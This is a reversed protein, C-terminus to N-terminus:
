ECTFGEYKYMDKATSYSHPSSKSSPLIEYIVTVISGSSSVTINDYDENDSYKKRYEKLYDNNIEQEKVGLKTVDTKETIVISEINDNEDFSMVVKSSSAEGEKTCVLEKACGTCLLLSIVLISMLINKM